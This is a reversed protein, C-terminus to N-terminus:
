SGSYAYTQFFMLIDKIGQGDRCVGLPDMVPCPDASSREGYILTNLGEEDDYLLTGGPIFLV